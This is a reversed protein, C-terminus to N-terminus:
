EMTDPTNHISLHSIPHYDYPKKTSHQHQRWRISYTFSMRRGRHHLVVYGTNKFVCLSM